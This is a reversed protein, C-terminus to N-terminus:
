GVTNLVFLAAVVKIIARQADFAFVLIAGM